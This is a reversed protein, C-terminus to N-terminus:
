VLIDPIFAINYITRPIICLMITYKYLHSHRRLLNGFIMVIPTICLTSPASMQAGGYRSFLHLHSLASSDTVLSQFPDSFFARACVLSFALLFTADRENVAVAVLSSGAFAEMRHLYFSSILVYEYFHCLAKTLLFERPM